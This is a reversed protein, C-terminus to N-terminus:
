RMAGAAATGALVTIWREGFRDVLTFALVVGVCYSAFALGGIWGAAIASLSLEARISPLLLGYAFRTLGYTLATLAFAAGVMNAHRMM